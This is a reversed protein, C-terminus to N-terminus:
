LLRCLNDLARKRHSIAAKEEASMEAFSRNEGDPVFVSDYGFGGDGTEQRAITGYVCGEVQQAVGQRILTVVTRFRARRNPKDAMESLLKKRNAAFNHDEGAYRASFVGPAGDLAEVELGTDDAFCDVGFHQWVYMAKQMSNGDLTDATEEIDAECGIESLSKLEVQGGLILRAEELKHNNNTAFVLEM